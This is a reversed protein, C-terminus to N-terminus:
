VTVNVIFNRFGRFCLKNWRLWWVQRRLPVSQAPLFGPFFLHLLRRGQTATSLVFHFAFDDCPQAQKSERQASRTANHGDIVAAIVMIAPMVVTPIMLKVGRPAAMGM